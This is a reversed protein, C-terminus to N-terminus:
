KRGSARTGVLSEWLSQYSAVMRGVSFEERARQRNAEGLEAALRSESALRVLKQGFAASDGPEVTQRDAEAGLLERVGEVDSALVPLGSAMAQLLVNPMGEWRSPLVLLRSAALIEPVDARWGVFHVRDSIGKSRCLRQLKERQPGKGVILLDCDPLRDLWGPATEILWGVGKQPELRGACTILCRGNPIKLSSASAASTAPYRDADIGNPIVVLKEAPLGGRGESYRAVSQSVCVFRDVGKATLRDAWLHWRRPEAVRIGSVVRPVGARRAAIRGVLNAHFLFTQVLKPPRSAFLRELRRAIPLVQWFARAGLFEIEVSAAELAGVCSAADDGPRPGLCYVIPEFRSRDLRTALDVLAREAGGVDLDTICLAIDIKAM